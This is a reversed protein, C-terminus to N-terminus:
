PHDQRGRISAAPPQAIDAKLKHLTKKLEKMEKRLEYIKRHAEDVETHSPVHSNKLFVEVIGREHIRYAMAASLLQGQLRVYEDSRFVELFAEDIVDIWLYLFARLDETPKEKAEPSGLKGMFRDFATTWVNIVMNQYDGSARRLELWAYFGKTVRENLERTLGLSPSLMLRGFTREFTDWYLNALEFPGSSGAAGSQGAAGASRPISEIWTRGLIRWQELYQRWLEGMDHAQSTWASPGIMQQRMFDAYRKTLTSWDAGSGDAPLMTKWATMWQEFIPMGGNRSGTPQEAGNETFPESGIPFFNFGRVAVDRWQDVMASFSFASVPAAKLLTFWSEWMTKQAETLANM